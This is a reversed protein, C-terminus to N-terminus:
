WKLEKKVYQIYINGNETKVPYTQTGRRGGPQTGDKLCFLWGHAPCVVYGDEIFGEHLILTHQHPCENSMAYLEGEVNFVAVETDEVPIAKAKGPPVEEIGCVYIFSPDLNFSM